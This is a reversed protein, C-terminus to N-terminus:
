LENRKKDPHRTEIPYPSALWFGQVYDVGMEKLLHQTADNEVWEAITKLRMIHGIKHIAEVMARDVPDTTMDKVLRGDIKLYDLPLDKLYGFSSLGSGFDDMSFRCGLKKLATVFRTVHKLDALAVNETIEFCLSSSSVQHKKISSVVFELFGENGLSQSSLNIAYVVQQANSLTTDLLHLTREVVWRDLALMQNYREASPLFAGPSILNGQEDQLRLLIEGHEEAKQETSILIIPQYYLLLRNDEIAQQIRPLWQMEGTRKLLISDKEQFVHIRNRGSDKAAFCASDAASLAKAFSINTQDIPFLGISVGISFAKNQWSFRFDQVLECLMKAIRLAKQQPCHELIIGFEDGGLRAFTDGSRLKTQLLSSVQRLLEDGANHGCTDNVVKFQDLDLYLLAHSQYEHTSELIQALRSEFENRNLLNTLADHTAQYTLKQTLKREETVDRFTLVSGIVKGKGVYIPATAYSIVFKQNNRRILLCEQNDRCADTKKIRRDAILNDIPKQTIANVFQFALRFSVGQVENNNKGTLLEAAPNLYTIKGHEDTTIVADRISALTVKFLEKEQELKDNSQVLAETRGKVRQELENNAIQLKREAHNKEEIQVQLKYNTALQQDKAVLLRRVLDSNEFRLRLRLIDTINYYNRQSIKIMLILFLLYTAAMALNPESRHTMMQYTFPLMAPISFILFAGRYSSLTTMSGAVIGGLLFALFLKRTPSEDLYFIGGAVGWLSGAFFVGLLFFRAAKIADSYSVDKKFYTKVQFYRIVNLLFMAALWALLEGKPVYNWHVLVLALALFPTALFATNSFHFLLKIQEIHIESTHDALLLGSDNRHNPPVPNQFKNKM